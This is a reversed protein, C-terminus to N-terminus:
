MDRKIEELVEWIEESGPTRESSTTGILKHLAILEEETEIRIKLEIPSFKKKKFSAKM